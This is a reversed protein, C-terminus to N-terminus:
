KQLEQWFSNGLRIDRFFWRRIWVSGLRYRQGSQPLDKLTDVASTQWRRMWVLSFGNEQWCHSFRKEDRDLRLCWMFTCQRPGVSDLPVDDAKRVTGELAKLQVDQFLSFHLLFRWGQLPGTPDLEPKLRLPFQVVSLLKMIGRFCKVQFGNFGSSLQKLIFSSSAFTFYSSIVWSGPHM